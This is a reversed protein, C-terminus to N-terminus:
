GMFICYRISRPDCVRNLVGSSHAYLIEKTFTGDFNIVDLVNAKLFVIQKDRPFSICVGCRGGTKWRRILWARQEKRLDIINGVCVKLEWWVEFGKWCVNVDPIGQGTSSEIRQWHAEPVRTRMWQYLNSETLLTLM